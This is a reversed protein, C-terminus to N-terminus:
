TSRHEIWRQNPTALCSFQRIRTGPAPNAGPLDLCRGSHASVLMTTISAAGPGVGTGPRPSPITRVFRWRQNARGTCSWQQVAAGDYRSEGAVDLCSGSAANVLAFLDGGVPIPLWRQSATGTCAAQHVGGGAPNERGVDLCLGSAASRLLRPETPGFALTPAPGPALPRTPTSAPPSTSTNGSAASGGLTAPTPRTGDAAAIGAPGPGTPGDRAGGPLLGAAFLVGVLVGATGAALAGRLLPDDPLWRPHRRYVTGGPPRRQEPHRPLEYRPM